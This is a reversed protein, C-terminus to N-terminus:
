PEVGLRKRLTAVHADLGCDCEEGTLGLTLDDFKACSMGHSGEEIIRLSERDVELATRTAVRYGFEMGSNINETNHGNRPDAPFRTNALEAARNDLQEDTISM